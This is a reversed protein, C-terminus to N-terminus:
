WKLASPWQSDTQASVPWGTCTVGASAIALARLAAGPACASDASSISM